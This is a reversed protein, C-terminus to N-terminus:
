GSRLRDSVAEAEVDLRHLVGPVIRREAIGGLVPVAIVLEGELRRVTGTGDGEFAFAADGHLLGPRSEAAFTLSGGSSGRLRVEQAWALRAGGLLRQAAADLSGVYEYRLLLGSSGPSAEAAADLPRIELLRLDPLDLSRYFDADGLM